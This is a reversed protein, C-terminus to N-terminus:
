PFWAAVKRIETEFFTVDRYVGLFIIIEPLKEVPSCSYHQKQYVALCSIDCPKGKKNLSCKL